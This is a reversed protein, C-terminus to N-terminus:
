PSDQQYQQQSGFRNGCLGLCVPLGFCVGAIGDLRVAHGTRWASYHRLPLMDLRVIPPQQRRAGIRLVAQEHGEGFVQGLVLFLKPRIRKM